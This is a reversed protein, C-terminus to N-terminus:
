YGLYGGHVELVSACVYDNRIAEVTMHAIEDPTAMRRALISDSFEERRGAPVSMAMATETLGPAVSFARIGYPSLERALSIALSAVGAKTAGYCGQGPRGQRSVSSFFVLCGRTRARIMRGAVVQASLFAGTLNVAIQRRWSALCYTAMGGPGLGVVVGDILIGAAYIMLDVRGLSDLTHELSKSYDPRTVDAHDLILQGASVEAFQGAMRALRAECADVVAVCAGELLLRKVLATGIGGAGGVIIAKSLSLDM